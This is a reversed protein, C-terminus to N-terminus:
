SAKGEDYEALAQERNNNYANTPTSLKSTDFDYTLLLETFFCTAGSVQGHTATRDSADPTRTLM